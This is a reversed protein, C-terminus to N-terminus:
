ATKLAEIFGPFLQWLHETQLWTERALAERAPKEKEIESLYANDVPHSEATFETYYPTFRRKFRILDGDIFRGARRFESWLSLILKDPHKESVDNIIEDFLDFEELAIYSYALRITAEMHDEPDIDLLFELMGACMEWDGILFHDIASSNIIMMAAQTNAEEWELEIEEKEPILDFIRQFAQFRMECASRIDGKKELAMSAAMVSQFDYNGGKEHAPCPIEYTQDVTPKLHIAAM